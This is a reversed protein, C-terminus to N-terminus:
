AGSDDLDETALEGCDPCCEGAVVFRGGLEDEQTQRWTHGHRCHVEVTYREVHGSCGLPYNSM